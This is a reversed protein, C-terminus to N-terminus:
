TIGGFTGLVADNALSEFGVVTDPAPGDSFGPPPSAKSADDLVLVWDGVDPPTFTRTGTTGHTGIATVSGSSPEFWYANAQTGSVRTMDISVQRSTPLYAIVTAGDSARATTAYAATGYTGYGATLTTHSLDPVLTHWPRSAFLRNAYQMSISGADNLSAKWNTTGCWNVSGFHWIPCGGFVYGMGGSLMSWYAQARLQRSTVGRENEYASEFMFFPMTPTVQYATEYHQHLKDVDYSYVGNIAVWSEGPWSTVPSSEAESHATMLHRTDYERIGDVVERVKSRVASPDTDGGILWVVNDFSAYRNGVYRGWTRM